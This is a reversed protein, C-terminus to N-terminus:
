KSNNDLPISGGPGHPNATGSSAAGGTGGTAPPMGGTPMGAPAGMGGMSGGMGLNSIFWKNGEKVLEAYLTVEPMQANGTKFVVSGTGKDGETKVDKVEFDKFKMSGSKKEQVYQEKSKSTKLYSYAQEYEKNQLAQVYAKLVGEASDPTATVKSGSCGAAFLLVLGLLLATVKKM